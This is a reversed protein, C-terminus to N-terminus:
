KERIERLKDEAERWMELLTGVLNRTVAREYTYEKFHEYADQPSAGDEIARVQSAMSQDIGLIHLALWNTVFATTQQALADVSEASARKAQLRKVDYIFARHEMKHLKVHATAVRKRIMLGEEEEFHYSAYESLEDLSADLGDASVAGEDIAAYIRNLIAILQQHQADVEQIHTAYKSSWVFM